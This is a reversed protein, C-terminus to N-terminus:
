NADRPTMELVVWDIKFGLNLSFVISEKRNFSYYFCFRVRNVEMTHSTGKNAINPNGSGFM